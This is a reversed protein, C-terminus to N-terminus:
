RPRSRSSGLLIGGVWLSLLGAAAYPLNHLLAGSAVPLIAEVLFAGLISLLLGFVALRQSRRQRAVADPAAPPGHM